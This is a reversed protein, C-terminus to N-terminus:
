KPLTPSEPHVANNSGLRFLSSKAATTKKPTDELDGNNEKEKNSDRNSGPDSVEHQDMIQQSIVLAPECQQMREMTLTYRDHRPHHQEGNNPMRSNNGMVLVGAKVRYEYMLKNRIQDETLIKDKKTQKSHYVIRIEFLIHNVADYDVTVTPPAGGWDEKIAQKNSSPQECYTVRVLEQSQQQRYREKSSYSYGNNNDYRREQHLLKKSALLTEFNDLHMRCNTQIAITHQGTLKHSNMRQYVFRLAVAALAWTLLSIIFWMLPSGKIFTDVFGQMWATDVVTWDGTLRDLVDFAIVGAVVVMLMEQAHVLKSCEQKVQAVSRETSSQTNSQEAAHKRAALSTYKHEMNAVLRQMYQVSLGLEKVQASLRDKLTDLELHDYLSRGAQEPPRPPVSMIPVAHNVHNWIVQALLANDSLTDLNRRARKLAENPSTMVHCDTDMLKSTATLDTKLLKIRSFCNHVFIEATVFQIYSCLLPEHLRAFPGCVMLGHSGFFLTDHESIDYAGKTDGVLQQIENEYAGRDMYQAATLQPTIENAVVLNFKNRQESEGLFLFSLMESQASSFMSTAITSSDTQVDVLIRSLHDLSINDKIRDMVAEIQMGYFCTGTAHLSIGFSEVQVVGEEEEYRIEAEMNVHNSDGYDLVEYSTLTEVHVNHQKEEDMAEEATEPPTMTLGQGDTSPGAGGGGGQKPTSLYGGQIRETSGLSKNLGVMPSAGFPVYEAVVLSVSNLTIAEDLSSDRINSKAQGNLPACEHARHANSLTPRGGNHRLCQPIFASSVYSVDEIDTISSKQKSTTSSSSSSGGSSSSSTTTLWYDSGDWWAHKLNGSNVSRTGPAAAGFAFRNVAEKERRLVHELLEQGKPTTRYGISPEFASASTSSSATTQRLASILEEERLFCIDSHGDHSINLWVRRNGIQTSLPAYDYDFVNAVVGEYVLVDLDNKDLWSSKQSQNRNSSSLPAHSTGGTHLDIL